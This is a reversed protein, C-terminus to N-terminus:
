LRHQKKLKRSHKSIKNKLKYGQNDPLILRVFVSNYNDSIETDYKVIQDSIFLLKLEFENKLVM